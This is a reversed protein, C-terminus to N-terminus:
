RFSSSTQTRSLRDDTRTRGDSMSPKPSGATSAAAQPQGTIAVLALGRGSSSGPPTNTSEFAESISCARSVTSEDSSKCLRMLSARRASALRRVHSLAALCINCTNWATFGEHRPREIKQVERRKIRGVTKSAVGDLQVAQSVREGVATVVDVDNM